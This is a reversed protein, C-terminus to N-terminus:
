SYRKNPASENAAEPKRHYFTNQQFYISRTHLREIILLKISARNSLFRMKVNKLM